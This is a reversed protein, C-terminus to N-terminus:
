PADGTSAFATPAIKGRLAAVDAAGTAFMCIQLEAIVEAVFQRLSEEGEDARVLMPRAMAGLDAGLAIAKAVDM